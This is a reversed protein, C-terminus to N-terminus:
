MQKQNYIM